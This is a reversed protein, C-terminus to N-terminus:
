KAVPAGYRYETTHALEHVERGVLENLRKLAEEREM